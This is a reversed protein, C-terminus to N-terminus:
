SFILYLVDSHKKGMTEYVKQTTGQKLFVWTDDNHEKKIWKLVMKQM